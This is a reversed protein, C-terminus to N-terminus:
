SHPTCKLWFYTVCIGAFLVGIMLSFFLRKLFRERSRQRVSEDDDRDISIITVGEAAVKEAAVLHNRAEVRREQLDGSSTKYAVIYGKM